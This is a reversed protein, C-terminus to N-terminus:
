PSTSSTMILHKYARHEPWNWSWLGHSEWRAIFLAKRTEMLSVYDPVSLHHDRYQYNEQKYDQINNLEEETHITYPLAKDTLSSLFAMDLNSSFSHSFNYQAIWEDWRIFSCLTLVLFVSMSNVKFLYFSSKKDRVKIWVSLLGIIVLVLFIIVGIRKYALSFYHIYWFDRVGVSLCLFINQAIWGFALPKLWKANRYFNLNRRFIFLVVAISILISFILLYTGEHVFSSLNKGQWEFGLWVYRIDLMNVFLLLLNLSVLLFIAARYESHLATLSSLYALKKRKRVIVEQGNTDQWEIKPYKKRWFFFNCVVVGILVTYILMVNFQGFIYNFFDRINIAIKELALYFAQNAIAYIVVFVMIVMIPIIYHVPSGFRRGKPKDTPKMNALQDIFGKQAGQTHALGIGFATCISRVNPFSVVGVFVIATLVNVVMSFTSNAWVVAIATLILALAALKTHFSKWDLQKTFALYGVMLSEFLIFNIGAAQKFFLVTFCLVAVALALLSSKPSM